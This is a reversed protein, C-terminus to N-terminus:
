ACALQYSAQELVAIKPGDGDLAEGFIQWRPLHQLRTGDLAAEFRHPPSCCGQHATVLLDIKESTPPLLGLTGVPLHDQDRALCTNAFRANGLSGHLPDAGLWM